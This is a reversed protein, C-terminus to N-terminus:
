WNEPADVAAEVAGAVAAAAGVIEMVAWVPVEKNKLIMAFGIM